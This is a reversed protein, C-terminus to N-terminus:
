EVLEFFFSGVFGKEHADHLWLNFESEGAFESFQIGYLVPVVLSSSHGGYGLRLFLMTFLIEHDDEHVAFLDTHAARRGDIYHISLFEDVLIGIGDSQVLISIM